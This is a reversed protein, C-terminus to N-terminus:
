CFSLEPLTLSYVPAYVHFGIEMSHEGATIELVFMDVNPLANMPELTAKRTSRAAYSTLLEKVTGTVTVTNKDQDVAVDFYETLDERAVIFDSNWRYTNTEQVGEVTSTLYFEYDQPLKKAYIKVFIESDAGSQVVSFTETNTFVVGGASTELTKDQYEVVFGTTEGKKTEEQVNGVLKYIAVGIGALAAIVVLVVVIEIIKSFLSKENRSM